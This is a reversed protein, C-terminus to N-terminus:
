NQESIWVKNQMNTPLATIPVPFSHHNKRIPLLQSALLRLQMDTYCEGSRWFREIKVVLFGNSIKNVAM